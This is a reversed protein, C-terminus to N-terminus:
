RRRCDAAFAETPTAVGPICAVLGLRKAERIVGTDGMRCSLSPAAAEAFARSMSPAIV